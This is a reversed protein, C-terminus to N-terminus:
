WKGEDYDDFDDDPDPPDFDEESPERKKVGSGGCASCFGVDPPGHQPIGTGICLPCTEDEEDEPDVPDNGDDDPDEEDEPEEPDYDPPPWCPADEPHLKEWARACLECPEDFFGNEFDFGVGFTLQEAISQSVKCEPRGCGFDPKAM